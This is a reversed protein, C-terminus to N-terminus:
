RRRSGLVNDVELAQAMAPRLFDDGLV